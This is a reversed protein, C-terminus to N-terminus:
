ARPRAVNAMRWNGEAVAAAIEGLCASREGADPVILALFTAAAQHLAGTHAIAFPMFTKGQQSIHQWTQEKARAAADLHNPGCAYSWWVCLLLVASPVRLLLQLRSRSSPRIARPPEGAFGSCQQEGLLLRLLCWGGCCWCCCCRRCDCFFMCISSLYRFM